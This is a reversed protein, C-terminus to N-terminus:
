KLPAFTKMNWLYFDEGTEALPINIGKGSDIIMQRCRITELMNGKKTAYMSGLNLAKDTNNRLHFYETDGDSNVPSFYYDKEEMIKEMFDAVNVLGYGFNVDYGEEDLDEATDTLIEKFEDRTISSDASLAIAAVGSIVPAAQSTGQLSVYMDDKYTSLVYGGPAAIDVSSNRQSFTSQSKDKEVSSVSIVEEYGAPYYMTSNGDNGAAAILIVGKKAAYKIADYVDKNDAGIRWSMNIIKCDFKDVADYIASSINSYSSNGDSDFAKLPVIKAKPSVGTVGVENQQAAIIGCVHTGHGNGDTTTPETSVYSKGTLLNDMLDIHPYCGSDIVAVKVDNGYTELNWAYEANILEMNWQDPYYEDTVSLLAPINNEELRVIEDTTVSEIYESYKEFYLKDDFLYVDNEKSIVAKYNEPQFDAKFKIIYDGEDAYSHLSTCVLILIFVLVRLVSKM